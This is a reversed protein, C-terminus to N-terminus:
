APHGELFLKVRAVVDGVRVPRYMVLAANEVAPPPDTRSAVVLVPVRRALLNLGPHAADAGSADLVVVDPMTGAALQEAADKLTEMGLAEVGMERLEARISGRLSWDKGIVFVTPM